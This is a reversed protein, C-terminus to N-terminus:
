NVIKIEEKRTFKYNFYMKLAMIPIISVLIVFSRCISHLVPISKRGNLLWYYYSYTKRFCVTMTRLPNQENIKITKLFHLRDIIHVISKIQQSHYRIHFCNNYKVTICQIRSFVTFWSQNTQILIILGFSIMGLKYKRQYQIKLFKEVVLNVDIKLVEYLSFLFDSYSSIMFDMNKFSSNNFNLIHSIVINTSVKMTYNNYNYRSITQENNYLIFMKM